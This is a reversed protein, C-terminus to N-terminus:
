DWSRLWTSECVSLPMGAGALLATCHGQPASARQRSEGQRADRPPDRKGGAGGMMAALLTPDPEGLVSGEQGM